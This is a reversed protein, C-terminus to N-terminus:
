KYSISTHYRFHSHHHNPHFPHKMRHYMLAMSLIPIGTCRHDNCELFYPLSADTKNTWGNNTQSVNVGFIPNCIEHYMQALERQGKNWHKKVGYPHFVKELHAISSHLTAITQIFRLTFHTFTTWPMLLAIITSANRFMTPTISPAIARVSGILQVAFIM